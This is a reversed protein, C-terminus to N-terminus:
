GVRAILGKHTNGIDLLAYPANPHLWYELKPESWGLFGMLGGYVVDLDKFGLFQVWKIQILGLGHSIPQNKVKTPGVHPDPPGFPDQMGVVWPLFCLMTRSACPKRRYACNGLTPLLGCHTPVGQRGGNLVGGGLPKMFIFLPLPPWQWTKTLLIRCSFLRKKKRSKLWRRGITLQAGIMTKRGRLNTPSWRFSGTDEIAPRKGHWPLCAERDEGGPHNSGFLKGGRDERTKLGKGM